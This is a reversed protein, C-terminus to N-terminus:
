RRIFFNDLGTHPM